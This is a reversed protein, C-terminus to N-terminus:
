NGLSGDSSVLGEKMSTLVFYFLIFLVDPVSYYLNYFTKKFGPWTPPPPVPALLELFKPLQDM